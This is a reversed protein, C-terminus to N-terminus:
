KGSIDTNSATILLTNWTVNAVGFSGADRTITMTVPLSGADAPEQVSTYQLQEIHLRFRGNPSDNESISIITTTAELQPLLQTDVNEEGFVSVSTLQVTFNERLEPITDAKVTVSITSDRYGAPISVNGNIVFPFDQEATALHRALPELQFYLM